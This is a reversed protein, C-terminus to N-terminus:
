ITLIATKMSTTRPDTKTSMTRSGTKTSTIRPATKISTILRETKMSTIRKDTKTSMTRTATKTWIIRTATKTRTTNRTASMATCARIRSFPSPNIARTGRPTRIITCTTRLCNPPPSRNRTGTRIGTAGTTMTTSDRRTRRRNRCRCRKTWILRGIPYISKRSNSPNRNSPPIPTTRRRTSPRSNQPRRPFTAKNTMVRRTRRITIITFRRHFPVPIPLRRSKNKLRGPTFLKKPKPKSNRWLRRWRTRSRKPSSM